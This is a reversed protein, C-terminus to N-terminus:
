LVSCATVSSIGHLRCGGGSNKTWITDARALPGSSIQTFIALYLAPYVPSKSNEIRGKYVDVLYSIAKFVFFSIGLPLAIGRATYKEGALNSINSLFFDAYKYYALIGVDAAIGLVQLFLRAKKFYAIAYGLLVNWVCAAALLFFYEQDGCAYFILSALLLIYPRIFNSSLYYVFLLVPLFLFLFITDTFAM